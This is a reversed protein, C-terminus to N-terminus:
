GRRPAACRQSGPSAAPTIEPLALRASVRLQGGLCTSRMKLRVDAPKASGCTGFVLDSVHESWEPAIMDAGCFACESVLVRNV